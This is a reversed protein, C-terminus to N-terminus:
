EGAPLSSNVKNPLKCSLSPLRSWVVGILEKEAESLQFASLFLASCSSKITNLYRINIITKMYQFFSEDRIHSLCGQNDQIALFGCFRIM